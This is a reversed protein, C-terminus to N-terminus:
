KLDRINGALFPGLIQEPRVDQENALSNITAYAFQAKLDTMCIRGNPCNESGCPACAPMRALTVVKPGRPMWEIWSHSGAFICLVWRGLEAALHAIGSNNAVVFPADALLSMMESWSTIGCLNQVRDSPFPQVLKNALARQAWTGTVVFSKGDRLGCDIFDAFNEVPWERIRENAFPALVVPALNGSM